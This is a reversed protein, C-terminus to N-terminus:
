TVLTQGVVPGPRVDRAPGPDLAETIAVMADM